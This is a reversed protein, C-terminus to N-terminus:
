HGCMGSPVHDGQILRIRGNGGLEPVANSADMAACFPIDAALGVRNLAKASETATLFGLVESGTRAVRVAVMAADDLQTDPECKLIRHIIAGVTYVDDLAVGGGRGACVLTMSRGEAAAEMLRATVAGINRLAAVYTRWAVSWHRLAHTGNTTAFVVRRGAYSECSVEHPSNGFDFGQPMLGGEEGGLLVDPGMGAAASRARHYDSAIWVEPDGADALAILTTSARIVDVVACVGEPDPEVLGPVLAVRLTPESPVKGSM